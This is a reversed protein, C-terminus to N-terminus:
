LKSISHFTTIVCCIFEFHFNLTTFNTLPSGVKLTTHWLPSWEPLSKGQSLIYSLTSLLHLPLCELKSRHYLCYQNTNVFISDFKKCEANTHSIPAMNHSHNPRKLNVMSLSSSVPCFRPLTKLKLHASTQRYGM